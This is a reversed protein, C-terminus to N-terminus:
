RANSWGFGRLDPCIVRHREALGAIVKGGGGGTSTFGHLLVIPDGSGPEAVHM